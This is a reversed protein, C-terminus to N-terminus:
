LNLPQFTEYLRFISIIPCCAREHNTSKQLVLYGIIESLGNIAYYKRAGLREKKKVCKERRYYKV